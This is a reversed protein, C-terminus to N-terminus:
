LAALTRHYRRWLLVAPSALIVLWLLISLGYEAFFLAIGLVTESANHFGAVFANHLRTSVSGAPANLQAKYEEMLNLNVAAFDVRHELMKQETEMQEIEGRVRRIEQEVQLVDTIKGARRQLIAQLRQETELSNKLRAVLDAHQQTVEEGAQTENEVRGLMKLENLVSGLEPAPVRLSAQISRPANEATNATLEAAYSHHRALTADLMARSANFDKVVLTLSVTRAILPAPSLSLADSVHDGLGQVVGNLEGVAAPTNPRSVKASHAIPMGLTLPPGDVGANDVSTRKRQEHSASESFSMLARDATEPSHMRNPTAMVILLILSAAVAGLGGAWQKWTWFSTRIFISSGRIKRGKRKKAALDFVSATLEMPASEIKWRSLSNSTGRLQEALESCAACDELHASVAQGGAASLEGDLFAMVEEPAVPHTTTNM